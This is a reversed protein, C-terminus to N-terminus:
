EAAFFLLIKKKKKKKSLLALFFNIKVTEHLYKYTQMGLMFSRNILRRTWQKLINAVLNSKKKAQM